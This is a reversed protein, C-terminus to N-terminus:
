PLDGLGGLGLDGTGPLIQGSGPDGGAEKAFAAWAPKPKRDATFLGTHRSFHDPAGEPAPDDRWNFWFIPGLRLKNADAELLNFSDTLLRAQGKENRVLPHNKPGASAWGIETVWLPKDPDGNEDMVRREKRMTALAGKANAAYSHAAVADIDQAFGKVKYLGKLYTSMPLGAKTEPMGALVIKALPDASTIADRAISLFKAFAKPKLEGAWYTHLNPENWVQWHTVPTYPILPLADWFDGGNGYRHVLADLFLQFRHLDAQTRPQRGPTKAIYDPTGIVVPLVTMGHLAAHLIVADFKSWNYPGDKEPQVDRWEFVTRVWSAGGDAMRTAEFNNLRQTHIGFVPSAASAMGPAIALLATAALACAGARIGRRM